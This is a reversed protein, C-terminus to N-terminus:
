QPSYGKHNGHNNVYPMLIYERFHIYIYQEHGLMRFTAPFIVNTSCYLYFISTSTNFVKKILLLIKYPMKLDSNVNSLTLIFIHSLEIQFGGMLFSGGMFPFGKARAKLSSKRCTWSINNFELLIKLPDERSYWNRINLESHELQGIM